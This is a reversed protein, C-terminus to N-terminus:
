STESEDVQITPMNQGDKSLRSDDSNGIFALDHGDTESFDHKLSTSKLSDM